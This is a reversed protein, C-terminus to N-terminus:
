CLRNSNPSRKLRPNLRAFLRSQPHEGRRRFANRQAHPHFASQKEPVLIPWEPKDRISKVLRDSKEYFGPEFRCSLVMFSAGLREIRQKSRRAKNLLGELRV